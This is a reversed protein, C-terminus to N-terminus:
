AIYTGMKVGGEVLKLVVGSYFSDAKYADWKDLSAEETTRMMDYTDYWWGKYQVFREEFRAHRNEIYSFRERAKPPIDHWCKLEYVRGSTRINM